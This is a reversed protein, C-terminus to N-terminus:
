GRKIAEYLASRVIPLIEVLRAIWYAPQTLGFRRRIDDEAARKSNTVDSLAEPETPKQNRPSRTGHAEPETPKQELMSRMTGSRRVILRAAGQVTIDPAASGVERTM